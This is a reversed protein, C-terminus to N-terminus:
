LGASGKALSRCVPLPPYLLSRLTMVCRDARQRDVLRTEYCIRLCKGPAPAGSRHAERMHPLRPLPASPARDQRGSIATLDRIAAAVLQHHKGSLVIVGGQIPLESSDRQLGLLELAVQPVGPDANSVLEHWQSARQTRLCVPVLWEVPQGILEEPRWGFLDFVRTLITGPDWSHDCSVRPGGSM